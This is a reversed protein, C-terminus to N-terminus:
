LTTDNKINQKLKLTKQKIITYFGQVAEKELAFVNAFNIMLIEFLSININVKRKM